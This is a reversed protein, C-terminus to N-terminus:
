FRDNRDENQFSRKVGDKIRDWWWKNVGQTKLARLIDRSYGPYTEGTAAIIEVEEGRRIVTAVFTYPDGHQEFDPGCRIVGTIWEVGAAM